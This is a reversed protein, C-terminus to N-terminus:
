RTEHADGRTLGDRPHNRILHNARTFLIESIAFLAFLARLPYIFVRALFLVPDNQSLLRTKLGFRSVSLLGSRGMKNIVCVGRKAHGDVVGGDADGFNSNTTFIFCLSIPM